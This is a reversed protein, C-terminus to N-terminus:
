PKPILLMFHKAKAGKSVILLRLDLILHPIWQKTVDRLISALLLYSAFSIFPPTMFYCDPQTFDRTLFPFHFINYCSYLAMNLDKGQFWFLAYDYWMDIKSGNGRISFSERLPIIWIEPLAPEIDWYQYPDIICCVWCWLSSCIRNVLFIVSIIIHFIIGLRKSM